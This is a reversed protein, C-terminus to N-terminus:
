RKDNGFLRGNCAVNCSSEPAERAVAVEPDTVVHHDAGGDTMQEFNSRGFLKIDLAAAPGELVKGHQRGVEIELRDLLGFLLELGQRLLDSATGHGFDDVCAVRSALTFQDEAVDHLGAAALLGDLAEPELGHRLVGNLLAETMQAGVILHLGKLGGGAASGFGVPKDADVARAGHGGEVGLFAAEEQRGDATNLRRRERDDDLTLLLDIGEHGLAVPLNGGHEADGRAFVLADPDVRVEALVLIIGVALGLAEPRLVLGAPNSRGAAVAHALDLLGRLAGTLKRGQEEVQRAQLALGVAAEAIGGLRRKGDRLREIFLVLNEGIRSGVGARKGFVVHRGHAVREVCQAAERVVRGERGLDQRLVPNTRVLADEVVRLDAVVEGDNRRPLKRLSEILDLLLDEIQDHAAEQGDEIRRGLIVHRDADRGDAGVLELGLALHKGLGAPEFHGSLATGLALRKSGDLGAFRGGHLVDDNGGHLGLSGGAVRFGREQAGHLGCALLKLVVLQAAGHGVLAQARRGGAGRDDLAQNLLLVHATLLALQMRHGLGELEDRQELPELDGFQALRAEGGLPLLLQAEDLLALELAVLEHALDSAQRLVDDVHGLLVLAVAHRKFIRAANLRGTRLAAALDDFVVAAEGARRGAALERDGLMRRAAHEFLSLNFLEEVRPM